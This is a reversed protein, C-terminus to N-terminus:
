LRLSSGLKTGSINVKQAYPVEKTALKQMYAQHEALRQLAADGPFITPVVHEPRYGAIREVPKVFPEKTLKPMTTKIKAWTEASPILSSNKTAAEFVDVVKSKVFIGKFIKWM